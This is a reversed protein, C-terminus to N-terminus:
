FIIGAYTTKPLAEAVSAYFIAARLDTLYKFEYTPSLLLVVQNANSSM